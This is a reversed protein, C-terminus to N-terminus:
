GMFGLNHVSSDFQSLNPLIDKLNGESVGMWRGLTYALQDVSTTPLLVGNGLQDPSSFVGKADATSFRPFTGYVEGGQVAGGMVVHHAGWGHDTGDGNNTFTRGFDSGTFTTVQHRLDGGPMSGLVSDFYSLAHDLQAM